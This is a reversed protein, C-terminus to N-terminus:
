GVMEKINTRRHDRIFELFEDRFKEVFSKVPMAAADGLPCITNGLIGDAVDYLLDVDSETGRGDLIRLIIKKLWGTGERCPSCQGCSEEWYFHIIRECAKVMCTKEHMVIVAASGLMSGAKQVSDFDLNIDIEEARLVPVSSGGPIVAKLALDDLIGGGDEYILKRLSYGMPREVIGPKKIHGSLSFIRTGGNQPTGLGAFWEGGKEVIPAINAITEVNNIITPADYLGKVAPFPPKLRPYGKKGELSTLMSTEEGCIYAGAGRYIDLELDFGSGFINKGLYGKDYAEKIAASLTRAQPVYEGRIYVYAQHSGITYCTIIIGEVLLHPDNEIIHRDKFTGPESEDANVCLYVPQDTDKPLFGWKMGTPFGAGGRGRLNSKKVEELIEGPSMETLARRATRYGGHKEYVKMTHSNELHFRNTLVLESM